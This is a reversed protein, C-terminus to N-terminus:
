FIFIFMSFYNEGGSMNPFRHKWGVGHAGCVIFLDYKIMISSVMMKSNHLCVYAYNDLEYYNDVNPGKNVVNEM